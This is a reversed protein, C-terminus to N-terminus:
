GIHGYVFSTKETSIRRSDNRAHWLTPIHLHQQLTSSIANTIAWPPSKSLHVLAICHLVIVTSQLQENAGVAQKGRKLDPLVLYRLSM